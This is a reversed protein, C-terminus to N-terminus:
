QRQQHSPKGTTDTEPPTAVNPQLTTRELATEVAARMEARFRDVSYQAAVSERESATSSVGDDAFRTLASEVGGDDRDYLMGTVGDAIQYQTFGERPGVVPTGSALAEIPVIGFDEDEAAYVLAEAGALLARKDAEAVFGRFTVNSLTRAQSHLDDEESGTGAIVLRKDPHAQFADIIEDINKTPELRDLVLYYPEDVPTAAAHDAGLTETEVPPYVIQIDDTPIGWYKRMRRRVVDSNAVYLDPYSLVPQYLQETAFTYAEYLLGAQPARAPYKDYANRPTSHTYKIVTQDERPKYWGPENGSQIIVDYSYLDPVSRWGYMYYADRLQYVRKLLRGGFVDNFLSHCEIDDPEYQEDGFGYYIPADFTRALEETVREGGGRGVYNGHAIAVSRDRFTDAHTTM